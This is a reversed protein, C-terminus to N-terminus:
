TKRARRQMLLGVGPLLLLLPASACLGGRGRPTEAPEAPPASPPEALSEPASVVEPRAPAEGTFTALDDAWLEGIRQELAFGISTIQAPDLAQLGEADAWAAREFADWRISLMDWEAGARFKAEFPTPAGHEGSYVVLTFGTNPTGARVWLTLGTSNGWDQPADYYRWCGGWGDTPIIYTMWMATTGNPAAGPAPQCEVEARPCADTFWIFEGEFTEIEDASASAPPAKGPYEVATPEVDAAVTQAIAFLGALMCLICLIRKM